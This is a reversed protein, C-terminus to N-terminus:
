KEFPSKNAYALDALAPRLLNHDTGRVGAPSSNDLPLSQYPVRAFAYLVRRVLNGGSAALMFLGIAFAMLGFGLRRIFRRRAGPMNGFLPALAHGFTLAIGRSVAGSLVLEDAIM